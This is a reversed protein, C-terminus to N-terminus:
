ANDSGQQKGAHALRHLFQVFGSGHLKGGRQFVADFASVANNVFGGFARDERKGYPRDGHPRDDERKPGFRRAGSYQSGEDAWSGGTHNKKQPKRGPADNYFAM